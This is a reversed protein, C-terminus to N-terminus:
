CSTCSRAAMRIEISNSTSGLSTASAVSSMPTSLHTHEPAANHAPRRPRPPAQPRLRCHHDPARRADGDGREESACTVPIHPHAACSAGGGAPLPSGPSRWCRREHPMARMAHFAGAPAGRERHAPQQCLVDLAGLREVDIDPWCWCWCCCWSWPWPWCRCCSRRRRHWRRGRRRKGLGHRHGRRHGHRHGLRRRRGGGEGRLLYRLQDM